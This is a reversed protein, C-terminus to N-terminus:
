AEVEEDEISIQDEIPEDSIEEEDKKFMDKTFQGKKRAEINSTDITEEDSQLEDEDDFMDLQVPEEYDKGYVNPYIVNVYLKEEHKQMYNIYNNIVSAVKILWSTNSLVLMVHKCGPGLSDRPNTEDSPILQAEGSNINNKTAWYGFRYFFDKCSCSIYVDNRNFARILARIILRLDLRNDNKKLEDQLETLFGGYSIKVIYNDTEGRVEIGIDIIDSKFLKNMDIKNYQKTSSAVKSKLRKQFRTKGDREKEGSKSKAVLQTRKDEYIIFM